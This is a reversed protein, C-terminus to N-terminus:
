NKQTAVYDIKLIDNYKFSNINEPVNGKYKLIARYGKKKGANVAINSEVRFAISYDSLLTRNVTLTKGIIGNLDVIKDNVVVDDFNEIEEVRVLEFDKNLKLTIVTTLLM